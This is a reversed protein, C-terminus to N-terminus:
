AVAALTRSQVIVDGEWDPIYRMWREDDIHIPFKKRRKLLDYYTPTWPKYKPEWIGVPDHNGKASNCRACACVINDWSTGGGAYRPVYHDFTVESVTLPKECYVCIGHDRYFLTERFLRVRNPIKDFSNRAIVSPWNMNVTPTLIKRDYEEVVHCTRNCVRTVADEAPITATPILNIPEYTANLVFTRPGLM